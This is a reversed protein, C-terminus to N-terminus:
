VKTCTNKNVYNEYQNIKPQYYAATQQINIKRAYFVVLENRNPQYNRPLGLLDLEIRVQDIFNDLNVFVSLFCVIGQNTQQNYYSIPQDPYHRIQWQLCFRGCSSILRKEVFDYTYKNFLSSLERGLVQKANLLRRLLLQKNNILQEIDMKIGKDVTLTWKEPIQKNM